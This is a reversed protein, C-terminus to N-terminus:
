LKDLVDYKFGYKLILSIAVCVLGISLLVAGAIILNQGIKIGLKANAICKSYEADALDKSIYQTLGHDRQTKCSRDLDFQSGFKTLPGVILFLVGFIVCLTMIIVFLAVGSSM